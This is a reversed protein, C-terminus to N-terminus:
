INEGILTLLNKAREDYTHNKIVNQYGNETIVQLEKLNNLYYKLKVLLDNQDNYLVLDNDIDFLHELGPTKNTFLATKCGMTEFTRFNVDDGINRNFHIKYSNIAKVMDDGIVFIDRKIGINKDIYDVWHRRNVYNGCFGVDVTKKIDIPKIIDSPYANPFYHTKQKFLRDHGYVAHLVIDIKHKNCTNIHQQPICHSDISWFLKLKNVNNLNPIWNNVEYNELLVIADCDEVIKNFPTKFNDYGLGWVVTEVGANKLGRSLNLAERFNENKKHRGKEQILLIKM